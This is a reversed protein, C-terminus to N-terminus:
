GVIDSGTINDNEDIYIEIAHDTFMEDSDFMFVMSTDANITIDPTGIRRIFEEKTIEDGDERWENALELLDEAAFEKVDFDWKELQRCIGNLRELRSDAAPKGNDTKIRVTCAEGSYNIKGEFYLYDKNWEFKGFLSDISIPKQSEEKLMEFREGTVKKIGCVMHYNECDKSKRVRVHYARMERFHFKHVFPIDKEIWALQGFSQEPKNKQMDMVATYDYQLRRYGKSSYRSGSKKGTLILMDDTQEEFGSEFINKQELQAEKVNRQLVKDVYYAKYHVKDEKEINERVLVRYLKGERFSCGGKDKAAPYVLWNFGAGCSNLLQGTRVNLAMDFRAQGISGIEKGKKARWMIRVILELQESQFEVQNM